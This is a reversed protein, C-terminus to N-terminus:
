PSLWGWVKGIQRRTQKVELFAGIPKITTAVRRPNDSGDHQPLYQYLWIRMVCDDRSLCMDTTELVEQSTAGIRRAFILTLRMTCSRQHDKPVFSRASYKARIRSRAPNRGRRRKCTDPKPCSSIVTAHQWCHDRTSMSNKSFRQHGSNSLIDMCTQPVALQDSITNISMIMDFM